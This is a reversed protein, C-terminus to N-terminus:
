KGRLLRKLSFIMSTFLTNNGLVLLLFYLKKFFLKSASVFLQSKCYTKLLLKPHQRTTKICAILWVKDLQKKLASDSCYQIKKNNEQLAILWQELKKLEQLSFTIELAEHFIRSHLKIIEKTFPINLQEFFQPYLITNLSQSKITHKKKSINNSHVRYYLLIEPLNGLLHNKSIELWLYYDEAIYCQPNYYFLQAIQTRMMISPHAFPPYFLLEAKITDLKPHVKWIRSTLEGKENIIRCSSGVIGHNPHTELFKVQKEFRKPLAIDDADMRAIYKGKALKIGENLHIVLGSNKKSNFLRIRKDKFSQIIKLSNDTSGDNFILFEFDTFTQNLISQIAAQIYKETNYVPMIVTIIPSM